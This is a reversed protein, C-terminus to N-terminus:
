REQYSLPILLLGNKEQRESFWRGLRHEKGISLALFQRGVTISNICGPAEVIPAAETIRVAKAAKSSVAGEAGQRSVVWSRLHGDVSASFFVNGRRFAGLASIWNKSGLAVSALPKKSTQSWLLLTGDQSGSAVRDQDLAAVADVSYSHRIFMLHSDREVKWFRVTKDLSGTVPRNRSYLDMCTVGAVHGLQTNSCRRGSLDWIKLSKDMSSSIVEAGDPESVLGTISDQHGLMKHICASRPPAKPDWLRVVRDVGASVLLQKQEVLCISLVQEFHGGCDFRNRGGPFHDKKGTEIDWRILSCDKGGTFATREDASLCCCTVARKHGKLFRPEGLKLDEVQVRAKREQEEVDKM